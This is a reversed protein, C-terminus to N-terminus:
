YIIEGRIQAFREIADERGGKNITSCEFQHLIENFAHNM